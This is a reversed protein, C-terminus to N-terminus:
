NHLGPTRSKAPRQLVYCKSCKRDLVLVSALVADMGPIWGFILMASLLGSLLIMKMWLGWEILVLHWPRQCPMPCALRCRLAAIPVERVNTKRQQNLCSDCLFRLTEFVGLGWLAQDVCTM